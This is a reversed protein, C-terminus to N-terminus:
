TISAHPAEREAKEWLVSQRGKLYRFFGQYLSLNIFVFYFPIYLLKVKIKKLSLAWGAFASIYFLFQGVLLYTYLHQSPNVFVLYINLLLVIPLLLPCLTWRLVRHSIYQFSLLPYKFINLLGKLRAISQFGGASIRIKRKQEEVISFSPSELAYAEPEYAIRYGKKCIRLSIIFDDLLVDNGPYEYLHTRISFLEGAAGVVTYLEADMKKLKSEYKWYLGEGLGPGQQNDSNMIKKEGAVGGTREDQYHTVINKICDTNLFTNADSFVVIPTTVFGMARHIAAIKGSRKSDHLVQVKEFERALEPTNDDSGDTVVLIKFKDVPYDLSLTNEIKEKIFSEENYAAIIITVPPYAYDRPISNKSFSFAKKLKLLVWLLLGYGIYSYFLIFLAFFFLAKYFLM